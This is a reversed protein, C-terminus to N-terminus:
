LCLLVKNFNLSKNYYLIGVHRNIFKKIIIQSEVHHFRYDEYFSGTSVCSLVYYIM